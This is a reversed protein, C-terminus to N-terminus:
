PLKDRLRRRHPVSTVCLRRHYLKRTFDLWFTYDFCFLTSDLFLLFTSDLISALEDRNLTVLLCQSVPQYVSHKLFLEGRHREHYSHSIFVLKFLIQNVYIYSVFNAVFRHIVFTLNIRQLMAVKLKLILNMKKMNCCHFIL